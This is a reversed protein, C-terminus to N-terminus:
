TFRRTANGGTAERALREPANPDTTDVRFTRTVRASTNPVRDGATVRWQYTTEPLDATSQFQTVPGAPLNGTLTADIDGSFSDGSTVELRYSIVDDSTSAEWDFLPTTDNTFDGSAPQLLAVPALDETDVTFTRRASATTNTARDIAIVQWEYTADALDGTPGFQIPDGTGLVVDLVIRGTDLDGSAVLLRHSFIDVSSSGTWQFLPIADNIFDGSAPLTLFAAAPPTVDVEFSRAVSAARNTARDESVVRWTYKQDGTLLLNDGTTPHLIRRTEVIDATSFTDGSSVQLIYAAIDGSASKGWRSAITRTNLLDDAKPFVLVPPAAPTTDVTFDTTVEVGPEGMNDIARVTLTHTGDAVGDGTVRVEVRDGTNPDSCDDGADGTNSIVFCLAAFPAATFDTFPGGDISAEYTKLPPNGVKLPPEWGFKPNKTNVVGGLNPDFFIRDLVSLNQVASRPGARFDGTAEGISVNGAFDQAAVFIKYRGPVLARTTFKCVANCDTGHDASTIVVIPGVIRIPYHSVDSGDDSSRDWQFARRVDDATVTTELLNTPTTPRKTDLVFPRQVSVTRNTARDEATVRWLYRADGLDGTTKFQTAPGAPAGGTLIAKLVFPEVFPDGSKVVELDYRVVDKSDSADWDFLPRTDKIFEDDKPSM